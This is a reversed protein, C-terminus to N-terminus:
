MCKLLCMRPMFLQVAKVFTAFWKHESNKMIKSYEEIEPKAFNRSQFLLFLNKCIAHLQCQNVGKVDTFFLMVFLAAFCNVYLYM